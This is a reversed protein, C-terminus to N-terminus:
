KCQTARLLCYSAWIAAVLETNVQGRLIALTVALVLLRALIFDVLPSDLRAQGPRMPARSTRAQTALQSKAPKRVPDGMSCCRV